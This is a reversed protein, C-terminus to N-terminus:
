GKAQAGLVRLATRTAERSSQVPFVAFDLCAAFELVSEYIANADDSELTLFVRQHDVSSFASQVEVGKPPRWNAYLEMARHIIETTANPRVTGVAVFQM